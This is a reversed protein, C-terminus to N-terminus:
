RLCIPRSGNSQVNQRKETKNKNQKRPFNKYLGFIKVSKSAKRKILETNQKTPRGCKKKLGGNQFRPIM